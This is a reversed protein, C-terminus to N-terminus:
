QILVNKFVNKFIGNASGGGWLFCNNKSSMNLRKLVNNLYEKLLNKFYFKEVSLFNISENIQTLTMTIKQHSM